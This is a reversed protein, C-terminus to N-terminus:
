NLSEKLRLTAEWSSAFSLGFLLNNSLPFLFQVPRGSILIYIRMFFRWEVSLKWHCNETFKQLFYSYVTLVSVVSELLMWVSLSLSHRSFSSLSLLFASSTQARHGSLCTLSLIDYFGCVALLERNLLWRFSELVFNWSALCACLSFCIERSEPVVLCARSRRTLCATCVNFDVCFRTYTDRTGDIADAASIWHLGYPGLLCEIFRSQTLVSFELLNAKGSLRFPM